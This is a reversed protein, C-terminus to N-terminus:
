PLPAGFEIDDIFVKGLGGMTPSTKNGVGITLSKVASIKVGASTFESLPITWQQWDTVTTAAADPHAVTKSKGASDKVTLYLGEASNGEEESMGHFYLSLTDAGHATWDQVPDFAREAESLFPSATNDYLLPMSQRGGHVVTREAFPSETYGVQSGSAETTVGDIWAQYIRRDDDNYSEFDDIAAYEQTAFSWVDGAYAGADGVEDVRWYYTTAFDLSAPTYRHETVTEAPASGDAVADQESGIFVTHSTAERGAEM